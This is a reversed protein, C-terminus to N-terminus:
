QPMFLALGYGVVALIALFVTAILWHPDGTVVAVIGTGLGLILAVVAAMGSGQRVKDRRTRRLEAKIELGEIASLANRVAAVLAEPGEIKALLDVAAPLGDLRARLAERVADVSPFGTLIIKPVSPAVEKALTLGSTDREDDDDRLRIDLIALDIGGQELLRRAQSPDTAPVVQYNEQELFEARTRLFDEDNDALLIIAKVM